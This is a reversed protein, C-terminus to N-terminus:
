QSTASAVTRSARPQASASPFRRDKAGLAALEDFSERILEPLDRDNTPDMWQESAVRFVVLGVEAALTAAPDRLGRARLAGALAASLGAYVILERERLEPNAAIIAQRQRASERDPLEAAVAELGAAVAEIPALSDPAGAVTRVLAERLAGAAAFLVERKDGFHRFFTRETLGAREAIQAVTTHQFGRTAYLELAAAHLRGRSGPKWRAMLRDYSIATVTTM